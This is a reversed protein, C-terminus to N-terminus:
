IFLEAPLTQLRRPKLFTSSKRAPIILQKDKKPRQIKVEIADILVVDDPEIEQKGINFGHKVLTEEAWHSRRILNSDHVGYDAALYQLTALLLDEIVLKPKRGGRAHKVQYEAKLVKVMEDFVPKAVGILRKFRTNNLNKATEYKM